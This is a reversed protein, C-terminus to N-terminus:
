CIKLQKSIKQKMPVGNENLIKVLYGAKNKIKDKNLNFQYLIPHLEQASLTQTTNEIQWESLGINRLFKCQMENGSIKAADQNLKILFTIEEFKKSLRTFEYTVELETVANIEKIAIDLCRKKLDSINHYKDSIGLNKKLDDLAMYRVGTNKFQSCFLYIRKAYKSKLGLISRIEFTTYNARTNLIIQRIRENVEITILGNNKQIIASSIFNSIFYQATEPYYIELPKSLLGRIAARINKYDIDGTQDLQDYTLRIFNSKEKQSVLQTIIHMLIDLEQATYDYRGNIAENSLALKKDLLEHM